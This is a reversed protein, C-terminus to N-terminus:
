AQAAGVIDETITEVSDHDFWVPIAGPAIFIGIGERIVAALAHDVELRRGGNLQITFPQFPTRRSLASTIATFNERTMGSM